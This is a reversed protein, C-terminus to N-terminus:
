SGASSSSSEVGTTANEVLDKLITRKDRQLLVCESPKRLEGWTVRTVRRLCVMGTTREKCENLERREKKTRGGHEFAREDRPVARALRGPDLPRELVRGLQFRRLLQLTRREAASEHAGDDGERHTMSLSLRHGRVSHTMLASISIELNALLLPKKRRMLVDEAQRREERRGTPTLEELSVGLADVQGIIIGLDERADELIEVLAVVIRGDAVVLAPIRPLELIRRDRVIVAM